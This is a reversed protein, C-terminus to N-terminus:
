DLQIPCAVTPALNSRVLNDCTCSLEPFEEKNLCLFRKMLNAYTVAQVKYVEVLNKMEDWTVSSVNTDGTTVIGMNRIKYISQQLLTAVCRTCLFPSIFQELLIKYSANEELDILWDSQADDPDVKESALEQLRWLLQSGIISQLETDQAWRIANMIVKESCNDNTPTLAKVTQPSVLYVLPHTSYTWDKLM